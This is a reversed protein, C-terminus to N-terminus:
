RITKPTTFFIKTRLMHATTKQFPLSKTQARTSKWIFRTTWIRHMTATTITCTIASWITMRRIPMKTNRQTLKSKRPITTITARFHLSQTRPLEATATTYKLFKTWFRTPKRPNQTGTIRIQFSCKLRLATICWLACWVTHLRLTTQYETLDTSSKSTQRRLSIVAPTDATIKRM